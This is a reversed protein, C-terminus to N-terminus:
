NKGNYLQRPKGEGLRVREYKDFECLCNQVDQAHIDSGFAEWMFVRVNYVLWVMHNHYDKVSVKKGHLGGYVLRTLGRLSGPGPASWTWWDPADRLLDTYKTDCVVQAAMFSGMGRFQMLWEHFSELTNFKGLALNRSTWIPNLVEDRLYGEKGECGTETGNTSVIYASSFVKENGEFARMFKKPKWPVPYGIKELTPHWNVLRAVVMAFWVNPDSDNTDRWNDAIWQTVTDNERFVNCFRYSQLIPCSTWPKPAGSEKLLFIRHREEIFRLFNDIVIPM